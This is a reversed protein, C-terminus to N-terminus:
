TAGHSFEAGNKATFSAAVARNNHERLNEVLEKNGDFFAKPLLSKCRNEQGM